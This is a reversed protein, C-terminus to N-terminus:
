TTKISSSGATNPRTCRLRRVTGDIVAIVAYDYSGPRIGNNRDLHRGIADKNPPSREYDEVKALRTVSITIAEYM